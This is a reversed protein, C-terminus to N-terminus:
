FTQNAEAARLAAEKIGEPTLRWRQERGGRPGFDGFQYECCNTYSLSSLAAALRGPKSKWSGDSPLWTLAREQAATLLKKQPHPLFASRSTDTTM